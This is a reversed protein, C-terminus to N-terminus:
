STALVGVYVRFVLDRDKKICSDDECFAGGIYQNNLSIVMGYPDPLDNNPMFKITYTSGPILNINIGSTIDWTNYQYSNSAQINVSQSHLLTMNNGPQGSYIQVTGTGSYLGVFMTEIRSLRGFINNTFTQTWSGTASLGVIASKNSQEVSLVNVYRPSPTPTATYTPTVTNTPTNSPTVTNTPSFSPTNTPTSTNTPTFTNTPTNSPTRTPTVSNTPTQTPTATPTATLGPTVTNTPTITPTRSPTRTNTPTLSITPTNTPTFSITPTNTPTFSITPTNSPTQSPTSTNTPTQSPTSSITPTNTPTNTATNSPTITPTPSNTPTPTPDYSRCSFSFDEYEISDDLLVPTNGVYSGWYWVSGNGQIGYNIHQGINGDFVKVKTWDGPIQVPAYRDLNDGLGLQGHNNWGWSWLSNDQKLALTHNVGCVVTKWNNDSGIEVFTSTGGTGNNGFRGENSGRAFLKGTQSILMSHYPGESYSLPPLNNDPALPISSVITKIGASRDFKTVIDIDPGQPINNSVPFPFANPISNYGSMSVFSFRQTILTIGSHLITNLIRMSTKTASSNYAPIGSNVGNSIDEINALRGLSASNNGIPISYLINIGKPAVVYVNQPLPLSYGTTARINPYITAVPNVSYDYGPLLIGNIGAARVLPDDNIVKTLVYLIYNNRSIQGYSIDLIKQNPFKSIFEPYYFETFIDTDRDDAGGWGYLESGDESAAFSFTLNEAISLALTKSWLQTALKSDVRPNDAVQVYTRSDPIIRFAKGTTDSVINKGWFYLYKDEPQSPTQTPTPTNTPTNTTTSTLTPTNTPTSTYTPTPTKTFYQAGCSVINDIIIGDNGDVSTSLDQFVVRTVESTATYTIIGDEWQLNTLSHNPYSASSFTFDTTKMKSSIPKINRKDASSWNISKDNEGIAVRVTKLVNNPTLSNGPNGTYKFRIAYSDGVNTYFSQSIWGNTYGTLSVAYDGNSLPGVGGQGGLYGIQKNTGGLVYVGYYDWNELIQTENNEFSPNQIVDTFYCQTRTPTSTITSTVTNTPTQTNTPTNTPTQTNTATNTPTTSITPSNSPTQSNTPTNSPTITNTPTATNTPTRTNTATPTTTSTNTPTATNTPTCTTTGTPTQTPTVSMTPTNTTTPTVPPTRTPTATPTPPPTSTSTATPTPTPILTNIDSYVANPFVIYKTSSTNLNSLSNAFITREYNEYTQSFEDNSTMAFYSNASLQNSLQTVIGAFTTTIGSINFVTGDSRIADISVGSGSGFWPASLAIDTWTAGRTSALPITSLSHAPRLNSDFAIGPNYSINYLLVIENTKTLAIFFGNAASKYGMLSNVAIVKKFSGYVTVPTLSIDTWLKLDDNGDIGYATYASYGPATSGGQINRLGGDAGLTTLRPYDVVGLTPVNPGWVYVQNLTNVGYFCGHVYYIDKWNDAVSGEITIRTLWGATNAPVCTPSGSRINPWDTYYPSPITYSRHQNDGPSTYNTRGDNAVNSHSSIYVSNYMDLIKAYNGADNFRWSPGNSCSTIGAKANLITTLTGPNGDGLVKRYEPGFLAMRQPSYIDITNTYSFIPSQPRDYMPYTRSIFTGGGAISGFITPVRKRYGLGLGSYAELRSQDLNQYVNNNVITWLQGTTTIAHLSFPTLLVKKWKKGSLQPWSAFKNFMTQYPNADFQGAYVYHKPAHLYVDGNNDVIAFSGVYPPCLDPANNYGDAIPNTYCSSFSQVGGGIDIAEPAFTNHYFVSSPSTNYIGGLGVYQGCSTDGFSGYIQPNNWPNYGKVYIAM